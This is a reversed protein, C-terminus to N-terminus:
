ESPAAVTVDKDGADYLAIGDANATGTKTLMVVRQDPLEVAAMPFAGKPVELTRNM